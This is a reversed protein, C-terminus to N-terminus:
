VNVYASGNWRKVTDNDLWTVGNWRKLIGSKFETGDFYEIYTLNTLDVSAQNTSLSLAETNVAINTSKQVTAALPSLTLSATGVTVEIAQSLSAPYTTLALSNTAVNVETSSSLSIGAQQETLVLAETSVHVLDEKQTGNLTLLGSSGWGYIKLDANSHDGNDEEFLVLKLISSPTEVKRIFRVLSTTEITEDNTWSTVSNWREVDGDSRRLFLDIDSSSNVIIECPDSSADVSTSVSTFSWSGGSGDAYRLTSTSSIVINYVLHIGGNEDFDMRTSFGTPTSGTTGSAEVQVHSTYEGSTIPTTLATGFVSQIEDSNNTDIRLISPSHQAGSGGMRQNFAVYIYGDREVVDTPYIWQTGSPTFITVESGWSTGNWKNMKLPRPDGTGSRYFVYLDDNAWASHPYTSPSMSTASTTPSTQDTWATIDDATDSIAWEINTAHDGHLVHFKGDSPRRTISPASHDDTSEDNDLDSVKVASSVTAAAHDYQVAYVKTNDGQYVVTTKGNAYVAVPNNNAHVPQSQGNAALSAVTNTNTVTAANETLTFSETGVTVSTDSSGAGIALGFGLLSASPNTSLTFDWGDSDFAYSSALVADSSGAEDLIRAQDSALNNTNTPNAGDEITQTTTYVGNSDFAMLSLGLSDNTVTNRATPGQLSCIMGFNPTFGPTTEAYNGSTPWSMDFLSVDPNNTFRLMLYGIIDSGASSSPTIEVGTSTFSTVAGGWSLTGNTQQGTINANSIQSSVNSPSSGDRSDIFVGKQVISTDNHAVGFSFITHAANNDITPSGTCTAFMLDPEFGADEVSVASTGTGLDDKINVYADAVDDGGILICTVVRGSGLPDSATIRVGDTIWSDFGYHASTSSTGSNGPFLIVANDRQARSTDPTAAGGIDRYAMAVQRTGDTFGVSYVGNVGVPTDDTIGNSMIFIAAKPTGFGSITVDQTGSTTRVSFTTAQVKVDAV